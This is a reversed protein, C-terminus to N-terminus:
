LISNKLPLYSRPRIHPVFSFLYGVEIDRDLGLYVMRLLKQYIIANYCAFATGFHWYAHLQTLPSILLPVKNRFSRLQPCFANDVNWLLFALVFGAVVNRTLASFSKYHVSNKVALKHKVLVYFAIIFNLFAYSVQHFAPTKLVLYMVTVIICYGVLIIPVAKGPRKLNEAEYVCFVVISTAYIMPLEDALQWQYLSTAHFMTSGLGVLMMGAYCLIYRFEHGLRRSWFIGYLSFLIYLMNSVTNWFESIYTTVAYKEECWHITATSEGWFFKSDLTKEM